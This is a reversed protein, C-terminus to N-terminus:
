LLHTAHHLAQWHAANIGAGGAGDTHDAFAASADDHTAAGIISSWEELQAHVHSDFAGGEGPNAAAVGAGLEPHFVFNDHAASVAANSSNAAPPDFIDTGGSDDSAFKFTGTFDIFTLSASNTGDTVTLVGTTSNYNESFGSSNYNIGALDVIDSDSADAATGTFGAIEGTFTSPSAIDLTGTGGAFLVTESGSGADTGAAAVVVDPDVVLTGYSGSNLHGDSLVYWTTNYGSGAINVNAIDSSSDDVTLLTNGNGPTVTTGAGFKIDGLDLIAADSYGSITADYNQSHALELIGAGAFTVNQDFADQFNAIGGAILVSGSGSVTSDSDVLLTGGNVEITGDNTVDAALEFMVSSGVMVTTGDSVSGITSDTLHLTGGVPQYGPDTVESFSNGNITIPSGDITSGPVASTRIGADDNAFTNNSVDVAGEFPSPAYFVVGAALGGDTYGAVRHMNEFTNDTIELPGTGNAVLVGIDDGNFTNNSVTGSVDSLNLVVPVDNDDGSHYPGATGDFTNGTFTVTTHSPDSPDGVPQFLAGTYGTADVLNDTFTVSTPDNFYFNNGGDGGSTLNFVSDIFTIATDATSASVVNTGTFAIGDLVVAATTTVNIADGATWDLNTEAGRAATGAIGANAGDITLAKNITLNENYTGPAVLITEGASAANIADQITAYGGDGVLLFNSSGDTVEQIGTLTDTGHSGDSVQWQGDVVTVDAATLAADYQVADHGGGGTVSNNGSGVIFTDNGTGGILADNGDNGTITDGANNGTVTVNAGLHNVTDYDALAISTVGAGLQLNLATSGALADITLDDTAITQLSADSGSDVIM